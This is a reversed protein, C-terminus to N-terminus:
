GAEPIEATIPHSARVLTGHERARQIDVTVQNKTAHYDMLLRELALAKSGDEELGGNDQIELVFEGRARKVQIEVRTCGPRALASDLACEAIKYFAKAVPTPVRVSSDFHLRLGPLTKRVRGALQDLAFQLGAREVISPNLANSIDRLQEIARELLSQIEVARGDLGPAQDQYDMRMADLQLGVASLVQSVDDHLLRAAKTLTTEQDNIAVYLMEVLATEPGAPQGQHDRGDSM